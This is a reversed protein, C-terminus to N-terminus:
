SLSYSSVVVRRENDLQDGDIKSLHVEFLKWDLPLDSLPLRKSWEIFVLGTKQAFVDWLDSTEIDDLSELRYLDFHDVTIKENKYVQHISFTPSSINKLGYSECFLKVFTTKGVALDGDLLICTKIDLLPMLCFVVKDLDASKLIIENFITIKNLKM